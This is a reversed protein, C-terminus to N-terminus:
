VPAALKECTGVIEAEAFGAIFMPIYGQHVNNATCFAALTDFFDDNHDFAIGFTRGTTLEHSRVYEAQCLSKGV